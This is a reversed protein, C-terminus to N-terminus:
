RSVYLKAKEKVFVWADKISIINLQRLWLIILIFKKYSIAKLHNFIAEKLWGIEIREQLKDKMFIQFKSDFELTSLYNSFFDFFQVTALIKGKLDSINDVRTSINQGSMRFSFLIQSSSVVGNNGQRIVIDDDCHWALPYDRFGGDKKLDCLKFVFFPIGGSIYNKSWYYLYEILSVYETLYADFNLIKGNADIRQIRPRFVNVNPYKSILIDMEMLYTPFYVDDDSALILYDGKAYSISHNWQAVLDKGGINEKNVYYQIRFDNYSNVISEIDDPSADNVIILEFNTYTQALISDIAEKLFRSKYAPLVFSYLREM